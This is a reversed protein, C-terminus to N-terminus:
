VELGGGVSFPGIVDGSLHVVSTPDVYVGFYGGNTCTFISTDVFWVDYSNTINVNGTVGTGANCGSEDIQGGIWRFGASGPAGTGNGLSVGAGYNNSTRSQHVEIDGGYFSLGAGAGDATASLNYFQSHTGGIVCNMPQGNGAYTLNFCSLNQGYTPVFIASYNSTFPVSVGNFSLNLENVFLYNANANKVLYQAGFGPSPIVPCPYITTTPNIGGLEGMLTVIMGYTANPSLTLFAPVANTGCLMYNGAPFYVISANNFPALFSGSTNANLANLITSIAPGAADDLHGWVLGSAYSHSGAYGTVSTVQGGSVAAIIGYQQYGAATGTEYITAGVNAQTFNCTACTISNQTAWTYVAGAVEQTDGYAGYNRVNYVNSGAGPGGMYKCTGNSLVPYYTGYPQVTLQVPTSLATCTGPLAAVPTFSSGGQQNTAQGCVELSAMLLLGLIVMIKKVTKEG